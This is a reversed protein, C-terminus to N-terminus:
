FPFTSEEPTTPPPTGPILAHAANALTEGHYVRAEGTACDFWVASQLPEDFHEQVARVQLWFEELVREVTAGFFLHWGAHDRWLWDLQGRVLPLGAGLPVIYELQQYCREAKAWREPWPSQRLTALADSEYLTQQPDFDALAARLPNDPYCFHAAATVVTRADDNAVPQWDEPHLTPMPHAPPRRTTPMDDESALVQHVRVRPLAAAPLEPDRCAGTRLDFQEQLVGMWANPAKLPVTQGSADRTFAEKFGASIILLDRPRTCAVYLIRLDEQWDALTEYATGLQHPYDSFLPQDRLWHPKGNKETLQDECPPKPLCGLERDWRASATTGRRTTAAFDPVVVVPFELGKAQHISMIKIVDANEPQTAAQEERPQASILEDLRAIFEPLGFLGSRDFSRALEIMKWLNALKRDGLFEFQVAADYGTDAIAMTLLQAITCRDKHTRWAALLQGIRQAQAAQVAPLRALHTLDHLSAWLGEPHTSLVVLTDDSLCGFPSRLVGALSLSDAPNELTRLLNLLDYIEQQAFFARGGVLYYNLDHQRLAAEYLAVNSMSRFLLVIDGPQVRRRQQTHVDSVWPTPDALLARLHRAIASAERERVTSASARKDDANPVSWLFEVCPLDHAAHRHAQLPEYSPM